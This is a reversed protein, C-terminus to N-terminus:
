TLANKRNLVYKKAAESMSEFLIINKDYCRVCLDDYENM